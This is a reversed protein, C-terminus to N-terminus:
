EVKDVSVSISMYSYQTGIYSGKVPTVDKYDRGTALIIYTEDVVKNNTPDLGIWGHGDIYVEVWAHSAESGRLGAGRTSDYFYGSVYRAPIKISRCMAIMAHAFDQCVGTKNLLVTNAHTTVSTTSSQYSFENFIYEMIAYATQFVDESDGKCDLAQRWAEPTIEVLSSDQLYPHCDEMKQCRGLDSHSFGYPLSAYDVRAFTEVVIQCNIDLKNHPRQVEFYHVLNQNLDEYHKLRTAPIVTVMNSVLKQRKSTRPILRLENANSHVPEPYRYETKHQVSLRM